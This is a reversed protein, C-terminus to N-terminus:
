RRGRYPLFTSVAPRPAHRSSDHQEAVFADVADGIQLSLGDAHRPESEPRCRNSLRIAASTPSSGSFSMRQITSGLRALRLIQEDVALDVGEEAKRRLRLFQAGPMDAPDDEIRRHVPRPRLIEAAHEAAIAFEHPSMRDRGLPRHARDELRGIKARGLRRAGRAISTSPPKVSEIRNHAASALPCDRVVFPPLVVGLVRDAEVRQAHAVGPEDLRGRLLIM